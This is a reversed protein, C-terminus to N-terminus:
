ARATRRAPQRRPVPRRRRLPQVAGTFRWREDVTPPRRTTRADRHQPVWVADAARWGSAIPPTTAGGARACPSRRAARLLRALVTVEMSVDVVATTCRPSPSRPSWRRLGPTAAGARVARPALAGDTPLPRGPVDSPLAVVPVTSTAHPPPPSAPGPPWSARPAPAAPDRGPRPGPSRRRPRPRVVPDRGSVAM